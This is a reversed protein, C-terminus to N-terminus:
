CKNRYVYSFFVCSLKENLKFCFKIKSMQKLHVILRDFYNYMFNKVHSNVSYIVFFFFTRNTHFVINLLLVRVCRLGSVHVCM